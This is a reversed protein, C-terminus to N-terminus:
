WLSDAVANPREVFNLGDAIFKSGALRDVYKKGTGLAIGELVARQIEEASEIEKV